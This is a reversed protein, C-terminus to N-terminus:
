DNDARNNILLNGQLLLEATAAAAAAATPRVQM